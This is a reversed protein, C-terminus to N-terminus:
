KKKEAEVAKNVEEEVTRFATNMDTKGLALDGIVKEFMSQAVGNYKSKEPIPAYKNYFLAGINKGKFQANEQGFAKKVADSKLVPMFVGKKAAETQYAESALFRIVEMAQEKYKSQKTVSFYTPYAQPGVGPLEKFTPMAVMDWRFASLEEARISPLSTIAGSMAMVRTKTFPDYTESPLKNKNEEIKARYGQDQAPNIFVSSYLKKWNDNGITAKDTKPDVLPLSFPNMRLIHLQTVGLGFYQVGGESRTLKKGLELAEDWNMGDKPYPVGFKDFIDKNYYLVMSNNFVPLGYLKGDSLQKLADMITPEFSELNVKYKKALDTMDYQMDFGILGDAFGGISEWYIDIPQGSAILDPLLSGKEKKIYKITYNSFKNRIADGFRENFSEQSDASNSFFVLEAPANGSAPVAGAPQEKTEPMNGCGALSIAALPLVLWATMGKKLM